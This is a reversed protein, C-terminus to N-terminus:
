IAKIEKETKKNEDDGPDLFEDDEESDSPEFFYASEKMNIESAKKCNDKYFKYYKLNKM